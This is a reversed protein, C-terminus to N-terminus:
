KLHGVSVLADVALYSVAEHLPVPVAGVPELDVPLRSLDDGGGAEEALGPGGELQHHLRGVLVPLSERSGLSQHYTKDQQTIDLTLLAPDSM